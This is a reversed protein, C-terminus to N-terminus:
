GAAAPAEGEGAKAGAKGRPRFILADVAFRGGGAFVFWLALPLMVLNKTFAPGSEPWWDVGMAIVFSLLLLAIVGGAIRTLLGAILLGGVVIEAYPLSHGYAVALPEPMPANPVVANAVFAEVDGQLKRVGAFLFMLGLSLRGLAMAGSELWGRNAASM